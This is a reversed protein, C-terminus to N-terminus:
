DAPPNVLDVIEEPTPLDTLAGLSYHELFSETTVYTAARGADSRRMAVRVLGADLLSDIIGRSIRVGRLREIDQLTVPQHMAIISLTAVAAESLQRGRKGESQALSATVDPAPVLRLGDRGREIRMGRGSWFRELSAVASRVDSDPLAAQLADVPVPDASALLLAEIALEASHGDM